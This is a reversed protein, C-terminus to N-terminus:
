APPEAVSAKRGAVTLTSGPKTAQAKLRAIALSRGVGARSAASTIEGVVEGEHEVTTGIAPAADGDLVIPALRRRVKGRMDQTCVVEQGLYCGKSWSVARRELSADHPNHGSDYDVGYAPVFREIRLAEWDDDTAIEVDDEMEQLRRLATEERGRSVIVAAGGLGTWDVSATAVALEPVLSSALAVSRPGHFALWTWDASADEIEVDEMILYGSYFDLLASGRGPAVSLYIRDTAAVVNVDSLIKGTKTLQLGWAGDGPHLAAVDCTLLGGLWAARESESM